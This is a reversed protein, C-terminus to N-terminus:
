SYLIAKGYISGANNGAELIQIVKDYQSKSLIACVLLTSIVSNAGVGKCVYDNLALKAKEESGFVAVPDYSLQYFYKYILQGAFFTQFCISTLSSLVWYMQLGYQGKLYGKKHLWLGFSNVDSEYVM